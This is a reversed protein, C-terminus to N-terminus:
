RPVELMAMVIQGEPFKGFPKKNARHIYTLMKKNKGVFFGNKGYFHRCFFNKCEYM